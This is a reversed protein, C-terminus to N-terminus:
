QNSLLCFINPKEHNKSSLDIDIVEADWWAEEGTDDDKLLHNVGRNWSENEDELFCYHDIVNGILENNVNFESVLNNLILWDFYEVECPEFILAGM